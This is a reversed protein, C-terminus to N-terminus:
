SAEGIEAGRRVQGVTMWRGGDAASAYASDIVLSTMLTEQLMPEVRGPRIVTERFDLFMERFWSVHSPDDFDSALTTRRLEGGVTYSVDDNEVTVSGGIGTVSYYSNRFGAAWSLDLMIQVDDECRITLMVTDETTTYRDHRLNGLLCSVAVPARGTLHM